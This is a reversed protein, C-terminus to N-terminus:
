KLVAVKQIPVSFAIGSGREQLFSLKAISSLVAETQERKLLILLLEKEPVLPASFFAIDNNTATGRGELITGGGAGAKRAAAMIDDAYGSSCISYVLDWECTNPLFPRREESVPIAALLGKTHHSLALAKWVAPEVAEEVLSLLIEKSSDGLGLLCLLSNPATGRGRLITGGNSGSEKALQMLAEAKGADVIALLLSNM